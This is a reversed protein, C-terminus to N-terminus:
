RPFLWPCLGFQACFCGLLSLSMINNGINVTNATKWYKMKKQSCAVM